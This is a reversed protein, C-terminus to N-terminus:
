IFQNHATNQVTEVCVMDKAFSTQTCECTTKDHCFWSSTCTSTFLAGNQGRPSYFLGSGNGPRIAYLAGLGAKLKM